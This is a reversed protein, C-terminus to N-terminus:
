KYRYIYIIRCHTHIIYIYIHHLIRMHTLTSQGSPPSQFAFASFCFASFCFPSLPFPLRLFALILFAFLSICLFLSPLIKQFFTIVFLVPLVLSSSFRFTWLANSFFYFMIFDKFDGLRLETRKMHFIPFWIHLIRVQTPVSFAWPKWWTSRAHLAIRWTGCIKLSKKQLVDDVESGKWVLSVELSITRGGIRRSVHKRERHPWTRCKSAIFSQGQDQHRRRIWLGFSLCVRGYAM